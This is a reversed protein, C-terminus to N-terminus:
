HSQNPMQLLQLPAVVQSSKDTIYYGKIYVSIPVTICISLHWLLNISGPFSLIDHWKILKFNICDKIHQTIEMGAWGSLDM